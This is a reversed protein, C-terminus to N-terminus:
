WELEDIYIIKCNHLEQLEKKLRRMGDLVTVIMLANDDEIKESNGIVAADQVSEPNQDVYVIDVNSMNKIDKYLIKGILSYGYLYVKKAGYFELTQRLITEKKENVLYKKLFDYRRNIGATPSVRRETQFKPYKNLDIDEETKIAILCVDNVTSDWEESASADPIGAVTCSIIQFDTSKALAILGDSFFRWCDVPYRHEDVYNPAIICCCGGWKLKKYIEGITKWPYEIHEFANASIVFDYSEDPIEDWSYSDKPVLDVNPGEEIDLGVYNVDRNYLLDKFCGNVDYSGVDLISKGDEVYNDIFWEMRKMASKHM